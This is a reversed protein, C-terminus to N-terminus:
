KRGGLPNVATNLELPLGFFSATVSKEAQITVVCISGSESDCGSWGLFLSGLAPTARLTVVTNWDYSAACTTGCNIQTAAAPSSNSTVTGKGIGNKTVTLAFQQLVFTAVVSKAESMTVTCTTESVADCGSWGGFTSGDDAYVTLIVQTGAYYTATCTTGCSIQNAADPTSSSMVTGSGNGAKVAALSYAVHLTDNMLVSVSNSGTNVAALDPKGDGNFDTVVVSTANTGAGFLLGSRFTGDGNGLLVAVNNYFGKAVALDLYDDGNFDGVALAQTDESIRGVSLTGAAQFTGDGHGLLVSISDPGRNTVALDPVSDGNFDGVAISGPNNGVETFRNAQFTGDGNGLLVGIGGDSSANAVALDAAGDRNFDSATVSIPATGADFAYVAQFTGDGNGFFLSVTNSGWNTVALDSAGDRNFDGVAVSSACDGAAYTVEAQFTGDNHGLLVSVTNASWNAVALDPAGDRNFDGVAVSTPRSTPYNVSAAFTGDGNGRLVSISNFEDNGVALDAVGDGDFDAVAVATSFGAARFDRRAIFSTQAPVTAAFASFLLTAILVWPCIPHKIM